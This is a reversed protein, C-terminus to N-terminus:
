ARYSSAATLLKEYLLGVIFWLPFYDLRIVGKYNLKADSYDWPCAHHHKLFIGSLYETSIICSAYCLGRIFASCDKLIRSLPRFIFAMGYIPFMFLSSNGKLTKDHHVLSGLGTWFVEICWGTSGCLLFDKLMTMLFRANVQNQTNVSINNVFFM